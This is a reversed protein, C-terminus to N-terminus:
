PVLRHHNYKAVEMLSDILPEIFDLDDSFEPQDLRDLLLSRLVNQKTVDEWFGVRSIEQSILEVLEVTVDILYRKRDDAPQGYRAQWAKFLEAFFPAQTKPDLGTDDEERGKQVEKIFDELAKRLAAADNEYQTLIRELRKSLKEYREPDENFHKRTHYRAAHEMESAAARDNPQRKLQEEFEADLLDIPPVQPDVGQSVVYEDILARVKDGLGMINLNRDRYRNRARVNIFGLAKIGKSYVRAEPRHELNGYTKLLRKLAAAFMGRHKDPRLAEVAAETNHIDPVGWDKFLATVRSHADRLDVLEQKASRFAGDVDEKTYERLALALQDGVGAYDVVYGVSKGERTRNVRAIAQLLEDEKLSRDIYLVQEVPADFGVLLMNKVILFALNDCKEPNTEANPHYFPKKFRQIRHDINKKDTWEAWDPDDNNSSSMVPAFELAAIREKLRWGVALFREDESLDDLEDATISKLREPANHIEQLWYDRADPLAEYYRMVALRSVATIQGKFGNPLVVEIYDRLIDRSVERIHDPTERISQSSVYKNQIATREAISREKFEGEFIEDITKGDKVEGKASRFEYLIPVIAQDEQAEILTYRDIFEGFIEATRKKKGMIIPTGTFGIKAANPMAAMINAHLNKAHSRHAEDVVIVISESPNLEGSTTWPDDDERPLEDLPRYKQIMAFVINATPKRLEKPLQKVRKVITVNEGSLTATESLQGQLDTRDTIFVIKFHRLKQHSRMRRILFVMTLSKGSGQTHFVIGGRRDFEGDQLRTKGSELREMAKVVARYQQYRPAIKVIRGDVKMFLVFHSVIDLLREPRLVGEIMVQQASARDRGLGSALDSHLSPYCDKWPLYHEYLAGPCAMRADDFSTSIMLQAYHFLQENGEESDVDHRQNSYRLLQQIGEAMPETAAPSKCEIVVLPIGNVFLVIDPLMFKKQQGVPEDVRFQNIILFENNAPNDWDIYQVPRNRGHDWHEVGSVVTGDLLLTTAARNKDILGSGTADQLRELDRIAKNIRSDDLWLQGQPDRNIQRIRERLRETLLVERFSTRGQGKLTPLLGQMGNLFQWSVAGGQQLLQDIFPQEVETYETHTQHNSHDSM